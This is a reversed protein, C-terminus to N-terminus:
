IAFKKLLHVKRKYYQLYIISIDSMYWLQCTMGFMIWYVSMIQWKGDWVFLVKRWGCTEGDHIQASDFDCKAGEPM